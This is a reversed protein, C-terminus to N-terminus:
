GGAAAADVESVLRAVLRALPRKHLAVLLWPWVFGWFLVMGWAVALNQDTSSGPFPAGAHEAIYGRVDLTLLMALGGTGLLACFGIAYAAWRWFTVRYRVAGPADVDLDLDNLGVNMATWWDAASVNLRHDDARRAHYRSRPHPQGTLLGAGVRAEFADLFRAPSSRIALMGEIRPVVTM